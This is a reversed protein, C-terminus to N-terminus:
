IFKIDKVWEKGEGYNRYVTILSGSKSTKKFKMAYEDVSCISPSQVFEINQSGLMGITKSNFHHLHGTKLVHIQVGYIMSYQSISHELNKEFQGHTLAINTGRVELLHFFKPPHIIVNENNTLRLKLFEPILRELNEDKLEGSKIGEIRLEAHNGLISYYEIEAYQSLTNLWNSMYESFNLIQEIVGEELTKLQTLRLLGDIADGLNLVHVKSVNFQDITQITHSLLQAMRNKFIEVSYEALIDDNLGYVVGKRGYHADAIDVTIETTKSEDRKKIPRIVPLPNLQKMAEELREAIVLKRSYERVLKNKEVNQAQNQKRTIEVKLQQEELKSSQSDNAREKYEKYKAIANIKRGISDPTEDLGLIDVVDKNTLGYTKDTKYDFIRYMWDEHSENKQQKFLKNHKLNERKM